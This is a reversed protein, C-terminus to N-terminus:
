RFEISERLGPAETVNSSQIDFNVASLSAFYETHCTPTAKKLVSGWGRKKRLRPVLSASMQLYFTGAEHSVIEVSSQILYESVLISFTIPPWILLVFTYEM